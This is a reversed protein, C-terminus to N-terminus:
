SLLLKDLGSSAILQHHDGHQIVYCPEVDLTAFDGLNHRIVVNRVAPSENTVAVDVFEAYHIKSPVSSFVRFTNDMSWLLNSIFVSLEM